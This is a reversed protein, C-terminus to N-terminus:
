VEIGYLTQFENVISSAIPFIDDWNQQQNRELKRFIRVMHGRSQELDVPDVFAVKRYLDRYHDIKSRLRKDDGIDRYCREVIRDMHEQQLLGINFHRPNYVLHSVHLSIKAYQQDKIWRLLYGFHELSINSITTSVFVSINDPTDDLMRLNRSVTEWKSPYRIAENAMGFADVSACIKVHKFSKWLEFLGSPFVTINSSYELDINGAIGREILSELLHRHHKILLPEGGGFTIKTLDDSVSVLSDINKKHKSWGFHDIDSGLSYTTNDVVFSDNGTVEEYIDYWKHAEGPFCMVCRLNCQNGIRLDFDRFRGDTIKGDQNTMAHSIDRNFHKGYRDSEWLNRSNAGVEYESQCRRCQSPWKGQLMEKRVEKLTDCNLIDVSGVDDITLVRGDKILLTNGTGASQSHSCMRLDGNNKVGIHTWPLPCWIMQEAIETM